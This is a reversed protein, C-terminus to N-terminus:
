RAGWAFYLGALATTLVACAAANVRSVRAVHIMAIALLVAGWISIVNFAALFAVVKVPAAGALWAASPVARITEITSSFSQPGRVMVIIGNVMSYIGYGVVLTNMAAAWLQKFSAQSRGAAKFALMIVTELLAALLVIAPAALWAFKIATLAVQLGRQQAEPTMAALKPNAAIQAPWGAQIAHAVAPGALYQGIMSLIATVLYAWGWMPVSRLREFATAPETIVDLITSLGNAKVAPRITSSM